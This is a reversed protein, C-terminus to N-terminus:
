HVRSVQAHQLKAVKRRQPSIAKTRTAPPKIVKRTNLDFGYGPGLVAVNLNGAAVRRQGAADLPMGARVQANSPDVVMVSSLGMVQFTRDPKLWVAAGADIGIGIQDPHDLITSLLRNGRRRALFHQDLIAGPFFGMGTTTEVNGLRITHFPSPLEKDETVTKADGTIMWQGQIATGASSGALVAGESYIKWLAQELPTGQLLKTFRRQDGGGFVVGKARLVMQVVKDDKAENPDDLFVAEVNKHGKKTFITKIDQFEQRRREKDEMGISFVVILENPPGVLQLVKEFVESLLEAGGGMLILHGRVKTEGTRKVKGAPLSYIGGPLLLNLQVNDATLYPADNSPKEGIDVHARAASLIM